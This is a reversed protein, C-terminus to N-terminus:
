IKTTDYDELNLAKKIGNFLNTSFNSVTNTLTSDKVEQWFSELSDDFGQRRM